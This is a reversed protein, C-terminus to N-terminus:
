HNYNKRTSLVYKRKNVFFFIFLYTCDSNDDVLGRTDIDLMGFFGLQLSAVFHKVSAFICIYTNM